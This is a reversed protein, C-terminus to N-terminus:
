AKAIELDLTLAEMMQMLETAAAQRRRELDASERRLVELRDEETNLQATYRRVLQQEEPTGKLSKLNERVRAQDQGIRAIEAQRAGLDAALAAIATKKALVPALAAILAKNESAGRIFVALRTDDLQAIEYRTELPHIESVTLTATKAADVPVLFRYASASTEAPQLNAALTWGPRIPHEVVVVRAATDSNRITYVRETRQESQQVAVGHTIRIRNIQQQQEGQRTSVQVGLDLAYSLLRKEGPKLPEVLGEGAFASGELV